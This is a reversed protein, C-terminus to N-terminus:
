KITVNEIKRKFKRCNLIGDTDMFKDSFNSNKFVPGINFFNNHNM